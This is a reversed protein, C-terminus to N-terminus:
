ETQWAWCIEWFIIQGVNGFAIPRRRPHFLNIKIGRAVQAMSIRSPMVRECRRVCESRRVLRGLIPGREACVMLYTILFGSWAGTIRKHIRTFGGLGEAFTSSRNRRLPTCDEFRCDQPVRRTPARCAAAVRAKLAGL